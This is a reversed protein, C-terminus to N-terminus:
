KSIRKRQSRSSFWSMFHHLLYGITRVKNYVDTFLQLTKEANACAEKVLELMDELYRGGDPDTSTFNAGALAIGEVAVTFGAQAADASMNIAGAYDRIEMSIDAMFKKETSPRSNLFVPKITPSTSLVYSSQLRDRPELHALVAHTSEAFTRVDLDGPRNLVILNAM